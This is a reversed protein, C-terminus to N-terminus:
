LVSFASHLILPQLTERALLTVSLLFLHQSQSGSGQTEWVRRFNHNIHLHLSSSSLSVDAVPFCPSIGCPDRLTRNSHDSRGLGCEQESQEEM